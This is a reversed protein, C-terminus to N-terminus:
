HSRKGGIVSSPRITEGPLANTVGHHSKKNFAVLMPPYQIRCGTLKRLIAGEVEEQSTAESVGAQRDFRIAPSNECHSRQIATM